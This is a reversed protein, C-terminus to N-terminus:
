AKEKVWMVLLTLVLAITVTAEIYIMQHGKATEADIAYQEGCKLFYEMAYM